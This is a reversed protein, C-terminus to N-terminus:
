SVPVIRPRGRVPLAREVAAYDVRADLRALVSYFGFQLRSMFLMGSPLPAFSRDGGLVHRKLESVGQVVSTAYPARSTSRRARVAARLVHARVRGRRAEYEGGRTELVQAVGRRFAHEDRARAARHLRARAVLARRRDAARLRLRPVRDHRRRRVLLQGSAPRRQVHRRGPQGQVRLAVAGRLLTPADAEPQEAAEELSVGRVLETTLVRRTSRERIVAPVRIHADGRHLAAFQTQREAELGYDLEERFRTAIEDFVEKSNLSRPGLAGVLGEIVGANQLDAEIAREIGPHQVKVAVERGDLLRARHM